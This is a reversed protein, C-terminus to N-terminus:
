KSFPENIRLYVMTSIVFMEKFSRGSTMSIKEIYIGRSDKISIEKKQESFQRFCSMGYPGFSIMRQEHRCPLTCRCERKLSYGETSSINSVEMVEKEIIMM